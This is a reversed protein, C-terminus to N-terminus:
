GARINFAYADARFLVYLKYVFIRATALHWILHYLLSAACSFSYLEIKKYKKKRRFWGIAGNQQGLRNM